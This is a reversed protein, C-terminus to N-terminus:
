RSITTIIREEQNDQRQMISDGEEPCLLISPLTLHRIFLDPTSGLVTVREGALNRTPLMILTNPAVEAEVDTDLLWWNNKEEDIVGLGEKMVINVHSLRRNDAKLDRIFKDPDEERIGMSLVLVHPKMKLNRAMNLCSNIYSENVHETSIVIRMNSWPRCEGQVVLLPRPCQHALGEAVSAKIFQSHESPPSASRCPKHGMIVLDHELARKCIEYVPNGNDIFSNIELKHAVATMNYAEMLKKALSHMVGYVNRYADSYPSIGILGPKEQILMETLTETPIVHQATVRAGTQWALAFALEAAYRSQESGSLALLISSNKM